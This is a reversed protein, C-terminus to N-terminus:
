VDQRVIDIILVDTVLEGLVQQAAARLSNRLVRMNSAATFMGEFGGTNSHDFLVQLFSDRLRPEHALVTEQQGAAVELSLTLVVMAVVDQGHVVPVIFQNNLRAYEPGGSTEGHEGAPAAPAPAAAPTAEGHAEAPAEGHGAEAAATETPEAAHGEAEAPAPASPALFMAAGVGGGAGVVFLILPLIMAKM